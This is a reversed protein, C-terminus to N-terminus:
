EADARVVESPPRSPRPPPTSAHSPRPPLSPRAAVDARLRGRSGAARAIVRLRAVASVNAVVGIALLALAIPSVSAWSPLGLRRALECALPVLTIGTALFAAREARRMVGKPVPVHLAEAKASGYSVMFSGLLALLAAGFLLGSSRFFYALGALAFFEEYRDVSADFLAGGPSATDTRRALLGDIGDGLSALGVAVAALGFHGMALFVGGVLGAVLSSGTVMNATVGAAALARAIPGLVEMTATRFVSPLAVTRGDDEDVGLRPGFLAARVAHSLSALTVVLLVALSGFLDARNASMLVASM